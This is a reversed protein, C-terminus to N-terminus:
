LPTRPYKRDPTGDAKLALMYLASCIRARLEEDGEIEIGNKLMIAKQNAEKSTNFYINDEFLALFQIGLIRGKALLAGNQHGGGDKSPM